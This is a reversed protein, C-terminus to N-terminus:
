RFLNLHLEYNPIATAPLSMQLDHFREETCHEFNTENMAAKVQDQWESISTKKLVHELEEM